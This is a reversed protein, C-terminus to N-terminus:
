RSACLGSPRRRLDRSSVIRVRRSGRGSPRRRLPRVSATARGKGIAPPALVHRPHSPEERGSPWRWVIYDSVTPGVYAPCSHCDVRLSRKKPALSVRM